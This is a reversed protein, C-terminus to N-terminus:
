RTAGQQDGIDMLDLIIKALQRAASLNKSAQHISSDMLKGIEAVLLDGNVQENSLIRVTHKRAFQEANLRQEGNGISLPILLAPLGAASIEACSGAGSRSIVVDSALYAQDMQSIYPMPHYGDRAPPLVRERGVSHLVQFGDALLKPLAEALAENIRQAGLSGGIVLLTKRASNLGLHARASLKADLREQTTMTSIRWISERIPLGIANEPSWGQIPFNSLARTAFRRGVRNALGPLANAEHVILPKKLIRAALYAPLAVYGGFGVVVKARSVLPLTRLIATLLRPLFTILEFNLKRPLNTKPVLHFRAGHEKLIAVEAGSSTALYACEFAGRDRESWSKRLAEETALAPLLHGASGGGAFLIQASAMLSEEM